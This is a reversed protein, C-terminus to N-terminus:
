EDKENVKVDEIAEKGTLKSYFKKVIKVFWYSNLCHFFFGFGFTAYFLYSPYCTNSHDVFVATYMAGVIQYWIYPALLIRCFFFSTAFSAQVLLLIKPPWFTGKAIALFVTSQEMVLMANVFQPMGLETFLLMVTFTVVGHALFEGGLSMGHIIDCISYGLTIAPVIAHLSTLPGGACTASRSPESTGTLIDAAMFDLWVCATSGIATVACHVLSHILVGHYKGIAFQISLLIVGSLVAVERTTWENAGLTGELFSIFGLITQSVADLQDLNNAGQYQVM